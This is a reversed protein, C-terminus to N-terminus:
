QARDVERFEGEITDDGGRLAKQEVTEQIIELERYLQAYIDPALSQLVELIRGQTQEQIQLKISIDIKPDVLKLLEARRKGISLLANTISIVLGPSRPGTQVRGTQQGTEPNIEKIPNGFPDTQAVIESAHDLLKWQEAALEGLQTLEEGTRKILDRLYEDLNDFEKVRDTVTRVDRDVQALTMGMEEAIKRNSFGRFHLRSVQKLRGILNLDKAAVIGAM